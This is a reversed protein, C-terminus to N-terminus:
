RAPLHWKGRLVESVSVFRITVEASLFVQLEVTQWDAAAIRGRRQRCAYVYIYIYVHTHTHTYNQTHTILYIIILIYLYLILFVYNFFYVFCVFCVVKCVSFFFHFWLFTQIIVLIIFTPNIQQLLNKGEFSVTRVRLGELWHVIVFACNM